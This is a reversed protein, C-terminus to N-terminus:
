NDYTFQLNLWFNASTGFALALGKAVRLTVPLEGNIIFRLHEIPQRSVRALYRLSWRRRKLEDRIYEGPHFREAPQRKAKM